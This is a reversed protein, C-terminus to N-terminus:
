RRREAYLRGVGAAVFLIGVLLGLAIPGGGEAATRVVIALGIAIMLGSLVQTARRAM